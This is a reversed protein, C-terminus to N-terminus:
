SKGPEALPLHGLHSCSELDLAVLIVVQAADGVLGRRQHRRRATDTGQGGAQVPGLDVVQGAEALGEAHDKLDAIVNEVDDGGFGLEALRRPLVEGFADVGQRDLAGQEVGGHARPKAVKEAVRETLDFALLCPCEHRGRGAM